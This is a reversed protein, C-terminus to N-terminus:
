LYKPCKMWVQLFGQNISADPVDISQPSVTPTSSGQDGPSSSHPEILCRRLFTKKIYGFATTNITNYFTFCHMFVSSTCVVLFLQLFSNALQSLRYLFSCHRYSAGCAHLKVFSCDPLNATRMNGVDVLFKHEAKGWRTEWQLVLKCSENIWIWLCWVQKFQM